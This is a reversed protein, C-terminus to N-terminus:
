QIQRDQLRQLNGRVVNTSPHDPGLLKEDLALAEQYLPEAKTYRGQHEYLVALNNLSRAIDPHKGGLFQKSMALAEQFLPEAESYRGQYDYLAALNNLSPIVDPHEDGLLRKSMALAEQFLPEAESYRGQHEYLLALNNLSFAVNPHEDDLLQKSMVLAEQYLYEAESYRGQNDYLAALNNLSRIVDPHEDGLLRRSMALIKQYLPEAKTYRGQLKYLTALNNLSPIVDPHEDGLLRKSMALAEQFLPEAESYRGQHEYLLALNNLSFAVNPHEDGLLRKSMALAEQFLPEAESYQACENLYCGTRALLLTTTKSEIQAATALQISVKAHPLLRDCDPLNGYEANPFAQTVAGLTREVWLRRQAEDMEVKVVEQVLRHITYSDTDPDVQILSYQSLPKLLEAIVFRADEQDESELAKSLLSGLSERGLILLEYPIRDPAVFASVQLLEASAPKTERVAEFNLQWTTQVSRAPQQENDVTPLQRELLALRQKRYQSLYTSFRLQWRLIFAGAQELALPLFGLEEALAAAAAQETPDDADRNARKYLFAVAEQPPMKRLSVPRDIGLMDFTQARSTLLIHGPAQAPRFPKLLSPHDANDFILLWDPNTELWHKVAQITDNPDQADQQPLNLLRAIEVFGTRLELDTEARVWFVAQYDQRHRYAYEVAAQTKGIGGLGHIAQIQSLAAAKDQNLQQHLAHLTEERGTFFVNREYPVNWPKSILPAPFEPPEKATQTMESRPFPPETGPKLRDPLADLIAQRAADPELGVLDVYVIPRLLGAPKCEQVRIPIIKRQLSTPADAFAAAWEPQTFEANLYDESLVVLTKDTEAAARQMDLVFNGGPRFDWAQIVVTHGAEELTWAIWEAWAKDARNYSVFFSPM